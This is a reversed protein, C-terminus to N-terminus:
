IKANLIYYQGCVNERYEPWAMICIEWTDFFADHEIYCTDIKIEGMRGIKEAVAVCPDGSWM